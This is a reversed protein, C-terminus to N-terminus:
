RLRVDRSFPNKDLKELDGVADREIEEALAPPHISATSLLTLLHQITARQRRITKIATMLDDQVAPDEFARRRSPRLELVAIGVLTGRTGDFAKADKPRRQPDFVWEEVAKVPRAFDVNEFYVFEDREILRPPASWTGEALALERAVADPSAGARVRALIAELRARGEAVADDYLRNGGDLYDVPRVMWFAIRAAPQVDFEQPHAAYLRRLDAPSADLDFQARKGPMGKWLSEFYNHFVIKNGLDERYEALTLNRNALLEEFAVPRGVQKSAKEIEQERQRRVANDLVEPPIRLGSRDAAKLIVLDVARKKLERLLTREYQAEDETPQREGAIRALRRRTIVTGEVVALPEDLNKAEPVPASPVPTEIPERPRPEEGGGGALRADPPRGVPSRAGGSCGVVGLAVLVATLGTRMSGITDRRHM